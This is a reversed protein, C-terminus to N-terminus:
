FEKQLIVRRFFVYSNDTTRYEVELQLHEKTDTYHHVIARIYPYEPDYLYAELIEKLPLGPKKGIM